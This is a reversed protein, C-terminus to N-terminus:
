VKLDIILGVSEDLKKLLLSLPDRVDSFHPQLKEGHCIPSGEWTAVQGEIEGIPRDYRPVEQSSPVGGQSRERSHGAVHIGGITFGFLNLFGWRVAYVDM